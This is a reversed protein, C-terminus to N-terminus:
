IHYTTKNLHNMKSNEVILYTKKILSCLLEYQTIYFYKVFTIDTLKIKYM